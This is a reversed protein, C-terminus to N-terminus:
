RTFDSSAPDLVKETAKELFGNVLQCGWTLSFCLSWLLSNRLQDGHNLDGLGAVVATYLARNELAQLHSRSRELM